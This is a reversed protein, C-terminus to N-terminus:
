FAEVPPRLVWSPRFLVSSAQKTASSATKSLQDNPRSILLMQADSCRLMQADSCPLSHGRRGATKPDLAGPCTSTEIPPRDRPDRPDRPDRARRGTTFIQNPRLDTRDSHWWVALSRFDTTGPRLRFTALVGARWCALLSFAVFFGRFLLSFCGFLRRSDVFLLPFRRFADWLMGFCGLADWLM